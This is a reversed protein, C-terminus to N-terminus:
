TRWFYLPTIPFQKFETYKMRNLSGIKCHFFATTVFCKIENNSRWRKLFLIKSLKKVNPKLVHLRVTVSVCKKWTVWTVSLVCDLFALCRVMHTSTSMKNQGQCGVNEVWLQCWLNTHYWKSRQCGKLSYVGPSPLFICIYQIIYKKRFFFFDAKILKNWSQILHGENLVFSSSGTFVNRNYRYRDPQVHM